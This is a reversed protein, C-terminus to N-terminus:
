VVRWMEFNVLLVTITPGAVENRMRLEVTHTATSGFVAYLTWKFPIAQNAAESLEQRFEQGQLVGDLYIGFIADSNTVSIRWLWQLDIRYTGAPKSATNFTAAAVNTNGTTTAATSDAQQEFQDGLIQALLVANIADIQGQVKGFAQLITDAAVIATNAGVSFGTLVVSLVTAAFNSITNALQTGTHNSRQIAFNQVATDAAAQATSVPKNVDSTNDVNGLGVQAKTVAHPNTTSAIHSDIQVHTNTGINQFQTHDLASQIVEATLADGADNYIVNITTSDNFFAGVIDQVDEPSVGTALTYVTGASDKYRLTTGVMYLFLKGSPPNDVPNSVLAPLKIGGLLM